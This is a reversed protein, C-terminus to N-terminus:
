GTWKAELNILVPTVHYEDLLIKKQANFHKILFRHSTDRFIIVKASEKGPFTRVARGVAQMFRSKAKGIGAIIVYECPKTDVGEGIVGETGILVKIEGSNFASIHRRSEEDQGHVFPLGTLESLIKGHAVEKVLCLASKRSINLNLLIKSINLNRETNKVIMNSYVERWSYLDSTDSKRLNVYFAEVPAIYGKTIAELYDLKYIVQGAISEFLLTEETENRFPTATFFYRYYIGKWATKNLNRYTKAAVHHAEDIILCDFDTMNKLRPSDINEITVNPLNIDVILQKKIEVSPVVILTRVNLFGALLTMALSKGTGTPATIIGRSAEWGAKQATVQWPYPEYPLAMAQPFTRPKVRLDQVTMAWPPLRHVLGTPFDGKKSILYNTRAYGRSFFAASADAKYSFIKRLESEQAKNLGKINSYSNNITLTIM